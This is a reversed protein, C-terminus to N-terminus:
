VYTYNLEVWCNFIDLGYLMCVGQKGIRKRISDFTKSNWSEMIMNLYKEASKRTRWFRTKVIKGKLDNDFVIVMYQIYKKTKM